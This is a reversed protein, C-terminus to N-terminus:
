YLFEVEKFNFLRIGHATKLVLRGNEDIDVLEADFVYESKYKRVKRFGFLNQLYKSKVKDINGSKLALYHQELKLVISELLDPLSYEKGYEIAMSTGKSFSIQAQNVNLGIGVISNNIYSGNLANEILIGCIKKENLLVDNPWKVNVLGGSISDHVAQAVGLSAIMNLGFQDKAQLFSPKLILSMTLNKGVESEWTNGRQGKGKTQHDTIVITGERTAPNKILESALENSSHCSPVYIIEKGLFLTNALIKYM